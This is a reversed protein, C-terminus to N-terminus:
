DSSVKPSSKVWGISDHQQLSFELCAKKQTINYGAVDVGEGDRSYLVITSHLLKNYNKIEYNM